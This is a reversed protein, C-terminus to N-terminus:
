QMSGNGFVRRSVAQNIMYLHSVITVMDGIGPIFGLIGDWGLRFKTGPVRMADDMVRAIGDVKEQIEALKADTMRNDKKAIQSECGNLKAPCRVPCLFCRQHVCQSM